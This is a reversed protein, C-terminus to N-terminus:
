LDELAPTLPSYPLISYYYVWREGRARRRRLIIDYGEDQIELLWIEVQARKRDVIAMMQPMTKPGQVLHAILLKKKRKKEWVINPKFPKDYKRM